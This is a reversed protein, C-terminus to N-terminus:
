WGFRITGVGGYTIYGSAFEGEFRGSLSVGDGLCLEAGPTALGLHKPLAANNMTFSAGPLAQFSATLAPDSTWDRAYALRGSLNLVRDDDLSLSHTFRAGMEGRATTVLREDYSLGFGSGSPDDEAYGPTYFIQTQVAAYPTVGDLEVGSELRGGVSHANFSATLRRGGFAFRDTSIEHFAHAAVAAIYFGDWRTTGKIGAQIDTSKGGGLDDSLNWSTGGGSIGFGIVTDPTDQYDLGAAFGYARSSLGDAGASAASGDVGSVGGYSSAWVSWRRPEEAYSVPM